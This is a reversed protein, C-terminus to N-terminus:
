FVEMVEEHPQEKQEVAAYEWNDMQPLLHLWLQM